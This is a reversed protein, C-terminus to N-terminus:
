SGPSKRQEQPQITCWLAHRYLYIMNGELVLQRHEFINPVMGPRYHSRGLAPLRFPSSGMIEKGLFGHQLASSSHLNVGLLAKVRSEKGELPQGQVTQSICVAYCDLGSAQFGYGAGSGQFARNGGM